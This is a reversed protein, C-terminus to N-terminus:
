RRCGSSGRLWSGSTPARFAARRDAPSAGGCRRRRLLLPPRFWGGRSRLLSRVIARRLSAARPPWPQNTVNASRIPSRTLKKTISTANEVCSWAFSLHDGARHAISEAHLVLHAIGADDFHHAQRRPRFELVDRMDIRLVGGRVGRGVLMVLLARVAGAELLIAIERQGRGRQALCQLLHRLDGLRGLVDHELLGFLTEVDLDDILVAARHESIARLIRVLARAPQDLRHCRCELGHRITDRDGSMGRGAVHRSM